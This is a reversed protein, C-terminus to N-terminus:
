GSTTEIALVAILWVAFVAPIMLVITRGLSAKFYEQTLSLCLHSPSLFVGVLGSAYAYQAWILGGEPHAFYARDVLAAAPMPGTPYSRALNVPTGQELDPIVSLAGARMHLLAQYGGVGFFLAAQTDFGNALGHAEARGCHRLGPRPGIIGDTRCISDKAAQLATDALLTAKTTEDLAVFGNTGAELIQDDLTDTPLLM